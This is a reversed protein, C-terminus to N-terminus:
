KAPCRVGFRPLQVEARPGIGPLFSESSPYTGRQEGPFSSTATEAQMRRYIAGGATESMALSVEHVTM